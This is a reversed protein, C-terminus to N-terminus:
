FYVGQSRGHDLYMVMYRTTDMGHNDKDVPVEKMPKGDQGKPWVYVEMEQPTCTPLKRDILTQDAKVLAGHFFFLRPKGDDAKQLRKQVAQIGPSIPKHAAQTHIGMSALTARDEADHDAITAEYREGASLAIIDPGWEQVIRGTGYLERYMFARGDNDTAWWQCVFPNTFGFDIVRYRPWEAPIPFRDILHIAPDWEEYVQGEAAVWLGYRLRKLRVGTLRDLVAMTRKGQETIQGTGQDFLVPNDEHRSEYFELSGAAARQKIWHTPPGPNADGMVQAYPMNGARGTARTTLTEWDALDLEEAQNVYIVDRETSLTKGPNDLGAVFVRSGTPYDFWTPEEGGYVKVPSDAGLVRRYTNLVSGNMTVRVKRIIVAQAGPYLWMMADLKELCARTKGTESPGALMVEPGLYNWLRAAGGHPSYGQDSDPPAELIQYTTM